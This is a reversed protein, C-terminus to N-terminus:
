AADELKREPSALLWLVIGVVNLAAGVWFFGRPGYAIILYPFVLGVVASGLNGAMNMTGSVAGAHKGGIDICLSWSPSLTMDAGFVALSLWAVASVATEQGVSMALGIAALSFGIIAPLRRSLTRSTHRYLFDVFAGSAINGLAGALLPAMAYFGATVLDLNYTKKVYPYLWTLTFFFTFNSAFYQGMVFWMNASGFLAGLRLPKPPATDVTAQQRTKLIHELEKASVGHKDAPEDRFWFWWVLSWVFGVVMLLCFSERWGLTAILWPLFPMTVAAGIRSGSFNIGKVLGREKVPIWSYVVRAMGPFAGAEGAGFLFRIVMMSTLNWAAATMGTFASWATVVTTLIKRAGLRDALAGSPTQLLAYGFAFAAMIWGWRKEAWEKDLWRADTQSLTQIVPDKATSICARDVYLLVSLSFTALVILYRRPIM